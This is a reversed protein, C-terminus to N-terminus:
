PKVVDKIEIALNSTGVAVRGSQGAFDGQQPMANGSKSVRAVVTVYGAQSLVAAQSMAMSDDLTFQIPLDKVKKRLIAVPMGSGAAARAFIFVTDDPRAEKALSPSLSVVGAIAKGAAALGAPAALRPEPPEPLVQPEPPLGARKRAEALGPKVQDVLLNDAPGVKVVSSWYNVAGIYDKKEFANTGALALAKINNGDIKLAREVLKMPEGALSRNNKVALADAYDALLPADDPRLALAKDYANIAEPNRGLVSYSRALMFWGEADDPKDQLRTALRDTMAAIQDLSANPANANTPSDVGATGSAEAAAERGGGVSVSNGVLTYGAVAVSLVFVVLVFQLKWPPQNRTKPASLSLAASATEASTNLVCDVIKRELAVREVEFAAKSLKGSAHHEQLQQRQWKLTQLDVSPEATAPLATQATTTSTTTPFTPRKPTPAPTPTPTM